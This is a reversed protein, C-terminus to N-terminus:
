VPFKSYNIVKLLQLLGSRQLAGLLYHSNNLRFLSRLSADSYADSKTVLTLNLQVLVKETLYFNWLIKYKKVFIFTTSIYLGLFARNRESKPWPQTHVLTNSYSPDQALLPGVTDALDTLQGLFLVVNSTMEYVTGDRPLPAASESRVSEAFDELAKGCQPVWFSRTSVFNTFCLVHGNMVTGHLSNVMSYFRNRVGSDCGELLKDCDAKLTVLHRLAPFLLLVPGFDHRGVSRRARGNLSEAEQFSLELADRLIISLVSKQHPLPIIGLMLRLESQMLRLMATFEMFFSEIEQEDM